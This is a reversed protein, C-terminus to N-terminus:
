IEQEENEPDMLMERRDYAFFANVDTLMGIITDGVKCDLLDSLTIFLPNRPKVMDFIEDQVDAVTCNPEEGMEHCKRIVARFFYCIEFSSLRKAAELDLLRFFYGIAEPTGTYTNALVFDLYSKYDIESQGTEQNRYTLCEQFIRTAFEPTLGGGRYRALESLTLMGNQNSDLELYEAYLRETYDISFWNRRLDKLPM